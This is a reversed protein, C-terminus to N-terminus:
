LLRVFLPKKDTLLLQEIWELMLTDPNVIKKHGMAFMAYVQENDAPRLMLADPNVIKTKVSTKDPKRAYRERQKERNKIVYQPHSARYSRQYESYYQPHGQRVKSKKRDRAKKLKQSRYGPDSRYKNRAFNLKRFRQCEKSGCYRQVLHKLRKNANVRRGCNHCIITRM